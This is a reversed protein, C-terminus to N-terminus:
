RLKIFILIFLIESLHAKADEKGTRRKSLFLMKFNHKIEGIPVRGAQEM